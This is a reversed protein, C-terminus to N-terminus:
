EMKQYCVRFGASIWERVWHSGLVVLPLSLSLEEHYLDFLELRGLLEFAIQFLLHAISNTNCLTNQYFVIRIISSGTMM